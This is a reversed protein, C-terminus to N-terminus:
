TKEALVHKKPVHCHFNGDFVPGGSGQVTCRVEYKPPAAATVTAEARLRDGVRAPRLFRVDAGALVVTAENVALMAAYDALGFVFGGHVLGSADAGMAAWTTMEVVAHGPSIEVPTGCLTREIGAHTRINMKM